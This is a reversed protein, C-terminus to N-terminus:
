PRGREGEPTRRRSEFMTTLALGVRHGSVSPEEFYERNRYRYSAVVGVRRFVLTTLRADVYSGDARYTPDFPDRSRDLAGALGLEVRNGLPLEVSAQVIDSYLIQGTGYGPRASRRYSLSFASRETRAALVAGGAFLYQVDPREAQAATV